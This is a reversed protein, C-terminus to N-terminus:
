APPARALARLAECETLVARPAELRPLPAFALRVERVVSGLAVLNPDEQGHTHCRPKGAQWGLTGKPLPKPISVKPPAAESLGPYVEGQAEANSLAPVSAALVARELAVDHASLFNHHHPHDGGAHTHSLTEYHPSLAFLVYAACLAIFGKRKVAQKQVRLMSSM